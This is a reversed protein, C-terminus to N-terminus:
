SVYDKLKDTDLTIDVPSPLPVPDGFPHSEETRYAGHEPETFVHLTTTERDVLLYVPIGVAAYGDRKEVLDRNRAKAGPSTVEVVMLVGEPAGWMDPSAVFHDIPALAGDAIARGNRYTDVKLEQEPYFMLEPRQQMCVRLLWMVIAKHLQDPLPKVKLEGNVFELKVGEPAVRALEEFDEVSLDPHDDAPADASADAPNPTM